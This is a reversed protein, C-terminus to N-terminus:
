RDSRRSKRDRSHGREVRDSREKKVPSDAKEQKVTGTTAAAPVAAEPKPSGEHKPSKGASSKEKSSADGNAEKKEEKPKGGDEKKDWRSSGVSFFNKYSNFILILIYLSKRICFVLDGVEAAFQFLLQM